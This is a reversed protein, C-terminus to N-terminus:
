FLDIVGVNLIVNPLNVIYKKIKPGSPREHFSLPSNYDTILKNTNKWVEKKKKICRVTIPILGVAM